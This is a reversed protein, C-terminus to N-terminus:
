FFQIVYYIAVHTSETNQTPLWISLKAYSSLDKNSIQFVGSTM